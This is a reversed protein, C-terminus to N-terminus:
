TKVRLELREVTALGSRTHGRTARRPPDEFVVYFSLITSSLASVDLDDSIEDIM